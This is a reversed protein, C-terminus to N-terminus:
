ILLTCTLDLVIRPLVPNARPDQIAHRQTFSEHALSIADVCDSSVWFTRLLNYISEAKRAQEAGSAGCHECNDDDTPFHGHPTDPAKERACCSGHRPGQEASAAPSPGEGHACTCQPGIMLSLALTLVAIIRSFVLGVSFTLRLVWWCEHYPSRFLTDVSFNDM